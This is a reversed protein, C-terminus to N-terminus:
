DLAGYVINRLRRVVDNIGAGCNQILYVMSLKEEPCVTMYTGTWGDWGFEGAPANTAYDNPNVLVRVLNGYSYGVLSDWLVTKQQEANLQPTRMYKWTNKGILRVGLEPNEGGNALTNAFAAYDSLTSILGAGGSILAPKTLYDNMGLHPDPEIKLGGNESDWIYLQAFRDRKEPSVWFDTDAMGLPEFIYKKYYEDLPMDAAKEIVGGLIDASAGYAWEAGPQFMLPVNGMKRCFEATSMPSDTSLRSNIEGYVEGARRQSENRIDPYPIGSTMNLLDKILIDRKAPVLKGDELAEMKSYEPYYWHLPDTPDIIGREWLQMAALATVPKTMSFMRFLTDETMPINKERDSMGFANEFVPKGEIYVGICGGVLKSYKIGNEMVRTIDASMRDIRNTDM